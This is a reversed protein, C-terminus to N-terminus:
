RRAATVAIGLFIGVVLAISGALMTSWTGAHTALDTSAQGAMSAEQVAMATKLEQVESELNNPDVSLPHGETTGSRAAWAPKSGGCRTTRFASRRRQMRRDIPTADHHHISALLRLLSPDANPPM